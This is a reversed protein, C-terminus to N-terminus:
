LVASVSWMRRFALKESHNTNTFMKGSLCYQTGTTVPQQNVHSLSYSYDERETEKVHTILQDALGNKPHFNNPPM